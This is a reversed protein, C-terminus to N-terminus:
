MASGKRDDKNGNNGLFANEVDPRYFNVVAMPLDIDPDTFPCIDYGWEHVCKQADLWDEFKKCSGEVVCKPLTMDKCGADNLFPNKGDGPYCPLPTGNMVAVAFKLQTLLRKFNQQIAEEIEMEGTDELYDICGEETAARMFYHTMQPGFLKEVCQDKPLKCHRCTTPRKDVLSGALSHKGSTPRNTTGCSNDANDDKFVDLDPHIASCLCPPM